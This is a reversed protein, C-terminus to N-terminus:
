YSEEFAYFKYLNIDVKQIIELRSKVIGNCVHLLDVKDTIPFAM